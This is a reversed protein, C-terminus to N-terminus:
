RRALPTGSTRRLPADRADWRIRAIGHGAAASTITGVPSGNAVVPEGAELPDEARVAVVIRTPHGRDAVMAVAEQGLFCGKTRDTTPARDWGAEAPLSEADLDVPFRPTGLRIRHSELAEPGVPVGDRIGLAVLLDGPGGTESPEVLLDFGEGLVSPRFSRPLGDPERDRIPVGVLRGPTPLLVVESSLVYPALIEAIAAPQGSPQALLFEDSGSGLVHFSARIRGTPSLLLSPRAEGSRLSEVDTTVLDHLWARADRGSVVTLEVDALDAVARGEGLALIQADLPAAPM